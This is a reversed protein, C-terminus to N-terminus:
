CTGSRYQDADTLVDTSIWIKKLHHKAIGLFLNHMPDIALMIPPDFYPLELLASYRCGLESEAKNRATVTTANLIRQIDRRHENVTRLHWEHRDFGSYDMNGVTGPFSKLCKSCGKHASHGLFGCLKRGAPIDCSM